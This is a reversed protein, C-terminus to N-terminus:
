WPAVDRESIFMFDTADGSTFGSTQDADSVFTIIMSFYSSYSVLQM